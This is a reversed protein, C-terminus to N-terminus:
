LSGGSGQCLRSEFQKNKAKVQAQAVNLQVYTQGPALTDAVLTSLVPAVALVGALLTKNVSGLVVAKIEKM